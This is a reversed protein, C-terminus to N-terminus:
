LCFFYHPKLPTKKNLFVQFWWIKHYNEKREWNHYQLIFAANGNKGKWVNMWETNLCLSDSNMKVVLRCSTPQSLFLTTFIQLLKSMLLKHHIGSPFPHLSLVQLGEFSTRCKKISSSSGSVWKKLKEQLWECTCSVCHIVNSSLVRCFLESINCVCFIYHEPFLSFLFSMKATCLHVNKMEICNYLSNKKIHKQSNFSLRVGIFIPAFFSIFFKGDFHVRIKKPAHM